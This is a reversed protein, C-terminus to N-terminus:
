PPSSKRFAAISWRDHRADVAGPQREDGPSEDHRLVYINGDNARVRFLSAGPSYWQDDISIIEYAHDNLFFRLPCQDAKYGSYTEVRLATM